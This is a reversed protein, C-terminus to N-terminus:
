IECVLDRCSTSNDTMLNNAYIVQEFGQGISDLRNGTVLNWLLWSVVGVQPCSSIVRGRISTEGKYVTVTQVAM